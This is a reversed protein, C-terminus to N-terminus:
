SIFIFLTCDKESVRYKLKRLLSCIAFRVHFLTVPSTALNNVEQALFLSIIEKSRRRRISTMDKSNNNNNNNDYFKVNTRVM